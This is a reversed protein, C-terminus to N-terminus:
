RLDLEMFIAGEVPNTRYPAIRRFGLSEYLPIAQQMSPLTDLRMALYSLERARRIAELALNRGLGCGRFDPRVYLRKMECVEASLKRLAVCGATRADQMALLLAGHPSAYDGPLGALEQEFNQFCLDIGLSGAYELFLERVPAIELKSEITILRMIDM